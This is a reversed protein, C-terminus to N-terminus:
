ESGETSSSPRRASPMFSFRVLDDRLQWGVARWFKSGAANDAFVDIHIKEIGEAVIAAIARAVLERAVGRRRYRPAVSLHYLYGRRGDHGGLICGALSAETEAVFSMGPNRALFSAVGDRSDSASAGVGEQRLLLDALPGHDDITLLRFRFASVTM